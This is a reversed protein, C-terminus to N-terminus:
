NRKVVPQEDQGNNKQGDGAVAKCNKKKDKLIITKDQKQKIIDTTEVPPYATTEVTMFVPPNVTNNVTNISEFSVM